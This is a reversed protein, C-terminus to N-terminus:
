HGEIVDVRVSQDRELCNLILMRSQQDPNDISVIQVHRDKGEPDTFQVEQEPKIGAMWRITIRHTVQSTFTQAAYIQKASVFEISAPLNDAVTPPNAGPIIQGFSDQAGTDVVTPDVIKIRHRLKGAEIYTQM